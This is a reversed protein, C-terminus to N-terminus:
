AGAKGAPADSRDEGNTRRRHAGATLRAALAAPDAGPLDVEHKTVKPWVRDLVCPLMKEDGAMARRVTVYAIAEGRSMGDIEDICAAHAYQQEGVYLNCNRLGCILCSCKEGEKDEVPERRFEWRGALLRDISIEFDRRYTYQNIGKPNRVEGPQIANQVPSAM